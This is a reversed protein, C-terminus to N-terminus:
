IKVRVKGTLLKQMLGKRLNQYEKNKLEMLQIDEDLKKLIMSIKNQEELKPLRIKINLLDEQGITTMTTTKSKKIIQKRIEYIDFLNKLLYSNVIDKNPTARMVHCEFIINHANGYYINCHAIGELKLSSRTFFLDENNVKNLEYEKDTVKLLELKEEDIFPDNYLDMVNILKYGSGVNNPNKFVGNRIEGIILEKFKYEKCNKGYEKQLLEKKYQRIKEKKVEIHNIINDVSNLLSVIKEQEEIPPLLVDFNLFEKESLEKQGTGNALHSRRKMFNNDSLMYYMYNNVANDKVKFSMIANSCIGGDLEKPLIAISGNFYNQKGIVIEGEQRVYFPRKDAMNERVKAKEMGKLNLKITLKQYRSTDEVKDKSGENLVEKLKVKKWGKPIDTENM